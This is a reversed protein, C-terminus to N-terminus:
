YYGSRRILWKMKHASQHTGCAGDHVEHLLRNVETLGLCKLLLGELTRYFMSDGILVYKMAKYRIRKPSMADMIPIAIQERMQVGGHTLFDGVKFGWFSLVEVAEAGAEFLLKVGRRVVEYEALNNTCPSPLRISFSYIVGRPSVLLIGIGCGDECASGDFYMAWAHVSLTAINTNIRETILDALAQGKVTKVPQYQIDFKSLAFM